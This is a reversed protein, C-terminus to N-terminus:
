SPARRSPPSRCPRRRAASAPARCPSRLLALGAGSRLGVLLRKGALDPHDRTQVHQPMPPLTLRILSSSLMSRSSAAASLAIYTSVSPSRIRHLPGLSAVGVAPRVRMPLRRHPLTRGDPSPRCPPSGTGAPPLRRPGPGPRTSECGAAAHKTPSAAPLHYLRFRMTDPEAVVQGDTGQASSVSVPATPFAEPQESQVFRQGWSPLEGVAVVVRQRSAGGSPPRRGAGVLGASGTVSCQRGRGRPSPRRPRQRASRV